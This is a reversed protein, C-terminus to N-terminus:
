RRLCLFRSRISMRLAACYLKASEIPSSPQNLAKVATLMAPTESICNIAIAPPPSPQSSRGSCGCASKSPLKDLPSVADTSTIFRQYILTPEVHRHGLTEQLERISMGAKLCHVAFSHRLTMLTVPKGTNALIVCRKLILEAMRESLHSTKTMGKFTYDADPCIKKGETLIPTLLESFPVHRRAIGRICIKRSELDIDGWKVSCVEKVKM